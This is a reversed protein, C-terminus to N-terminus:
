SPFPPPGPLPLASRAAAARDLDDITRAAGELDDNMAVRIRTTTEPDRETALVTTIRVHTEPEPARRLIRAAAARLDPPAEPDELVTWLTKADFGAGRYGGGGASLLGATVDLRALWDRAPAGNRRLPELSDTVDAKEAGHGRARAACSLLQREMAELESRGLGAGAIQRALPVRLVEGRALTLTVHDEGTDVAVVEGYTVTRWGADTRLTVGNEDLQVDAPLKPGGLGDVLVAFPFIATSGLAFAIKMVIAPDMDSLLAIFPVLLILVCAAKAAARRYSHGARTRWGLVGFGGHGIGLARRLARADDHSDLEIQIPQARHKHGLSMLVGSSTTATTAGTLDHAGIRQNRTRAGHIDIWGAGAVIEADVPTRMRRPRLIPLLGGLAILYLGVELGAIALAIGPLLPAVAAAVRTHAPGHSDTVRARVLAAYARGDGM